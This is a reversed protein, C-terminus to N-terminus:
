RICWPTLRPAAETGEGRSAHSSSCATMTTRLGSPTVTTTSGSPLWREFSPRIGDHGRHAKADVREPAEVWEADALFLVPVLNPLGRLIEEKSTM